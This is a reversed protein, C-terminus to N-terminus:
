GQIAQRLRLQLQQSLHSFPNASSGSPPLDVTVPVFHVGIAVPQAPTPVPVAVQLSNPPPHDLSHPSPYILHVNRTNRALAYALMQYLDGSPVATVLPPILKYKVDVVVKRNALWLDTRLLGAPKGGCTGLYAPQQAQAGWDPFHRQVFGTIFDEFVRETPVLFSFSPPHGPASPGQLGALFWRCMALVQAHAAPLHNRAAKDCDHVTCPRYSVGELYHLVDRLAEAGVADALPLVQQTVCRVIQNFLNDLQYLSYENHLHQWQGTSVQERLYAPVDLRGRSFGTAETLGSYAQLPQHLLTSRTYRAFRGVLWQPVGEGLLPAADTWDFPFRAPRCYSLYYHLHRFVGEWTFQREALLKPVIRITLPGCQIFGSYNRARIWRGDFQLLAQGPAPSSEEPNEGSPEAEYFAHRNGWPIKLYERLGEMDVEDPLPQFDGFEVLTIVNRSPSLAPVSM